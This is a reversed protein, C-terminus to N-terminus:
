KITVTGVYIGESDSRNSILYHYLANWQTLDYMTVCGESVNGVHVFNSNHNPAYEIPFWVTHYKLDPNGGPATVYFATYKDAKASQPAMIRYIGRPLPKSHRQQKFFPSVRNTEVYPIDSDLTIMASHGDFELTSVLQNHIQGRRPKSALEKYTGMTAVLKAGSGRKVDVLCKAANEKKMSATRGKHEGEKIVFFARDGKEGAMIVKVFECIFAFDTRKGTVADAELQVKLWGTTDYSKTYRTAATVRHMSGLRTNTTATALPGSM